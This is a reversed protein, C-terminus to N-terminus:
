DLWRAFVCLLCVRMSVRLCVFACVFVFVFLVCGLVCYAFWGLAFLREVLCLANVIM